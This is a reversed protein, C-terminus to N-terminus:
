AAARRRRQCECSSACRLRMKRGRYSLFSFQFHLSGEGGGTRLRATQAAGVIGSFATVFPVAPTFDISADEDGFDLATARGCVRQGSRRASELAARMDTPAAAIDADTIESEFDAVRERPLGLAAALEDLEDPAVPDVRYAGLLCIGDDDIQKVILQATLEEAALDVTTEAWLRQVDHRIREDDLGVVVIEPITTQGYGLRARFFLFREPRPVVEIGSALVQRIVEAKAMGLRSRTACVYAGMNEPGLAQKDVAELRGSVPARATAYAFGNAVGGCGILLAELVLPSLTPGLELTGPAGTTLGYLSLEIPEALLPRGVLALFVQGVGLCAAALAAFVNAPVDADPLSTAGASTAVRACWGSSDIAVWAPHPGVAPGVNLVADYDAPDADALSMVGLEHADGHIDAAIARVTTALATASPPLAVAVNPCFRLTENVALLLAEQMPGSDARQEDLRVLVRREVFLHEVFALEDGLLRAALALPRSSEDSV